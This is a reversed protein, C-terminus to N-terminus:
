IYGDKAFCRILVSTANKTWLRGQVGFHRSIERKQLARLVVFMM